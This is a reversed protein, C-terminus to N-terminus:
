PATPEGPSNAAQPGTQAASWENVVGARSRAPSQHHKCLLESAPSLWGWAQGRVSPTRFGSIAQTKGSSQGPGGAQPPRVSGDLWGSAPPTGRVEFAQLHAVAQWLERPWASTSRASLQGKGWRSETQGMASRTM